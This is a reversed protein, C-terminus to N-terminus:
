ACTRRPPSSPAVRRLANKGIAFLM